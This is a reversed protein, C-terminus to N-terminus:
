GGVRSGARSVQLGRDFVEEDKTQVKEAYSRRLQLEAMHAVASGVGLAAISCKGIVLAFPCGRAITIVGALVMLVILAFKHLFGMGHSGNILAFVFGLIPVLYGDQSSACAATTASTGVYAVFDLVLKITWAWAGLQQSRALDPMRHLLVRGVLSLVTLLTIAGFIAGADSPLVLTTWLFIAIAMGLLLLHGQYASRFLQAAFAVELSPDAFAGTVTHMSAYSDHRPALTLDPDHESRTTDGALLGAMGSRSMGAALTSVIMYICDHLVECQM